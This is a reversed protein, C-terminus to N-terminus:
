KKDEKGINALNEKIQEQMKIENLAAEHAKRAKERIEPIGLKREWEDHEKSFQAIYVNYSNDFKQKIETPLKDFEQHLKIIENQAEALNKPYKTMDTYQAQIRKVADPDGHQAREVLAEINCEEKHSQIIAYTNEPEDQVLYKHGHKDLEMHYKNKFKSGPNQPKTKPRNYRTNIVMIRVGERQM